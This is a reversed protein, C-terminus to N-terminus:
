SKGADRPPAEDFKNEPILAALAVRIQGPDAEAALDRIADLDVPARTAPDKRAVYIRDFPTREVKEEDTLLEEYEKEGPRLGTIRIEIDKGPTLGSLEILRRAMDYIRVQQGMELVMIDRDHGIVAAQLLLDVAEPISMFYRVVNESTVTVPGGERIQQKFLPIVSGSSDLVNGFRVVVFETGVAPRELAVREALRKSAGMVSSPCVAKDTSILVFRRVGAAEAAALTAATGLVNTELARAPNDEMLPVHKYAAAHFVVEVGNGVLARRLQAPDRVDGIVSALPLGTHAQRLRRTLDYLNFESLEFLTLRAPGYAALQRCLEGGISGGAGTVMISKGRVFTAVDTRDLKVPQRGLLDEIEVNRIHSVDIQGDAIATYDPVMRLTCQTDERELQSMIERIGAPTSYPPLLLIESVVLQRAWGGTEAIGGLIRVGRLSQGPRVGETLIGLLDRRGDSGVSHILKNAAQPSGLILTRVAKDAPDRSRGAAERIIRTLVRKGSIAAFCIMFDLVLVPRSLGAFYTTHWIMVAVFLIASAVVNALFIRVLDHISVYRWMGSYIRFLAFVLLKVAIAVPLLRELSEIEDPRFEFFRLYFALLVSLAVTFGSTVFVLLTKLPFLRGVLIEILRNLRQVPTLERRRGASAAADDAAIERAPKPKAM